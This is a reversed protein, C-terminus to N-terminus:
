YPLNTFLEVAGHRVLLRIDINVKLRKLIRKWDHWIKEGYLVFKALM